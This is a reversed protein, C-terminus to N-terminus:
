AQNETRKLDMADNALKDAVGNEERPIHTFTVNPFESVRINHVAIYFPFLNPEKIQYEGRLQKAVLESDMRVEVKIDRRDQKTVIKKLEKLGLIVGEYEAVNNTTEGLFSSVSKLEENHEDTIYAGAGAPGPNGRAGGDTYVIIKKV